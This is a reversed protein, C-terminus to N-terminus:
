FSLTQRPRAVRPPTFPLNRSSGGRSPRPSFDKEEAVARIGDILEQPPTRKLVFGSAGARLAEFVYEDTEFTTVILVKPPSGHSTIKRTAEIGDLAPMRVDMLVLEPRLERVKEVAEVGTSAEGVVKIDDAADLIMALGARVLEDDDARRGQWPFGPLLDWQEREIPQAPSRNQTERM